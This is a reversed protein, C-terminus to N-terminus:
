LSMPNQSLSEIADTLIKKAKDPEILNAVTFGPGGLAPMYRHLYDEDMFYYKYRKQNLDYEYIQRTICFAEIPINYKYWCCDRMKQLAKNSFQQLPYVNLIGFDVSIANSLIIPLESFHHNENESFPAIGGPFGILLVDPKREAYVSYVYRNFGYVKEEFTYAENYLFSPLTFMGFLSGLDNQCITETRYGQEALCEDLLLLTEFKDCNSGLGLIAIVPIPISYLAGKLFPMANDEDM